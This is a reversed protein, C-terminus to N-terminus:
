RVFWRVFGAVVAGGVAGVASAGADIWLFTREPISIQVLEIVLGMMALGGAVLGARRWDGELALVLSFGLLGFAILHKMPPSISGTLLVIGGPLSILREPMVSVGGPLLSGVLLGVLVVGVVTWRAASASIRFRPPSNMLQITGSDVLGLLPGKM